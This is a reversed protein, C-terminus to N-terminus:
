SKSAWMWAFSGIIVPTAGYAVPVLVAGRHDRQLWTSILTGDGDSGELAKLKVSLENLARQAHAGSLRVRHRAVPYAEGSAMGPMRGPRHLLGLTGPYVYRM